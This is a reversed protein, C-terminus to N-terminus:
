AEAKARGRLVTPTVEVSVGFKRKVEETIDPTGVDFREIIRAITQNKTYGAETSADILYQKRDFFKILTKLDAIHLVIKDDTDLITEDMELVPRGKFILDGGDSLEKLLPRGQKDMLGDLYGRGLNNTIIVARQRANPALKNIAKVIGEHDTVTEKALLPTLAKIIEDNETNVAFEAFEENVFDLFNVENDELLSNEIPALLGFDDIDYALPKTTLMAKVLETDEVLNALKTVTAGARVPMKGTNSAVPIVHCYQKISIYGEKLKEFENVFEQPIVAGNNTASMVSREEEDLDIKRIAKSMARLQIKRKEEDTNKNNALSFTPTPSNSRNEEIAELTAEIEEDVIEMRAEVREKELSKARAEEEKEEKALSRIETVLSRIEETYENKKARLEKLRKFLDM